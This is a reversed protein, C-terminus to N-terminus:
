RNKIATYLSAHKKIFVAKLDRNRFMKEREKVTGAQIAIDTALMWKCANEITKVESFDVRVDFRGVMDLIADLQNMSMTRHLDLNPNSLIKEAIVAHYSTFDQTTTKAM